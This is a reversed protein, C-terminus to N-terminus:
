KRGGLMNERIEQMDRRFEAQTRPTPPKVDWEALKKRVRLLLEQEDVGYKKCLPSLALESGTFRGKLFFPLDHRWARRFDEPCQETNIPSFLERVQSERIGGTNMCISTEVYALTFELMVREISRAAKELQAPTLGMVQARLAALAKLIDKPNGCTRPDMRPIKEEEDYLPIPPRVSPNIKFLSGQLRERLDKLSIGYKRLVPAAYNRGPKAAQKLWAEQFDAPCDQLGAALMAKRFDEAKPTKNVYAHTWELELMWIATLSLFQEIAKKPEQANPTAVPQAATNGSAAPPLSCTLLVVSVLTTRLICMPKDHCARKGTALLNM